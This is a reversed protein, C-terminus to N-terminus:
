EFHLSIILIFWTNWQKYIILAKGAIYKWAYMIVIYLRESTLSHLNNEHLGNKNCPSLQM